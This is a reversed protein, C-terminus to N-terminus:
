GAQNLSDEAKAVLDRLYRASRIVQVLSIEAGGMLWLVLLAAHHAAEYIARTQEFDNVALEEKEEDDSM